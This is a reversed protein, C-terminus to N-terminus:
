EGDNLGFLTWGIVMAVFVILIIWAAIEWM